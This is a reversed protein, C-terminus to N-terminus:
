RVVKIAVGLDLAAWARDTTYVTAGLERGLALCVRDALSLGFRKTAMVWLGAQIAHEATVDVVFSALPAVSVRIDAETRDRKTLRAVVEALNISSIRFDDTLNAFVEGGPEDLLTALVVSADLVIM